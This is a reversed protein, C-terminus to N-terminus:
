KTRKPYHKERCEPCIAHSFDAGTHEKLYSELHDWYGQDDRIKKCFACIPILGSLTKIEGAARQLEAILREKEEEIRKRETIDVVISRIEVEGGIPDPIRNISLSVWVTSGDPRRMQLHRDVVPRGANFDGMVGQAASKSDPTDLCLDFLSRGLLEAREIGVLEVARRNCIQIIGDTDTSFYATPANEYLDRFKEESKVLVARDSKLQTVDTITLVRGRHQQGWGALPFAGMKFIREGLTIEALDGVVIGPVSTLESWAIAAEEVSMGLAEFAPSGFIRVAAPNMDVIRTHDDLVVFGEGMQEVVLDRAFLRLDFIRYRFITLSFVLATGVFGFHTLDLGPLPSLGSVYLLNGILPLVAGGVMLGIGFRYRKTYHRFANLLLITGAVFMAYTYAIAVWFWPGHKYIPLSLGSVTNPTISTWILGHLDNTFAMVITIAPLIGLLALRKRTLWGKNGTYHLAFVLWFFGVTAIGLYECKAWFIKGAMELAAGELARTLSWEGVALMLLTFPTGGPNGRRSLAFLAFVLAICANAVFLLALPTIHYTM